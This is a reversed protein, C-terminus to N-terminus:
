MDYSALTYGKQDLCQKVQKTMAIVFDAAKDVTLKLVNASEEIPVGLVWQLLVAHQGVEEVQGLCGTFNRWLGFHKLVAPIPKAIKGPRPISTEASDNDTEKEPLIALEPVLYHQDIGLATLFRQVKEKAEALLTNTKGLSNDMLTATDRQNRQFLLHLIIAKRAEADLHYIAQLIAEWVEARPQYTSSDPITSIDVDSNGSAIRCGQAHNISKRKAITGIWGKFSGEGLYEYKPLHNWIQLWIDQIMDTICDRPHGYSAFVNWVIKYVYPMYHRMLITFAEEDGNQAALVYMKEQEPTISGKRGPGNNAM